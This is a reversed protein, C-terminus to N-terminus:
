STRGEAMFKLLKETPDNDILSKAVTLLNQEITEKDKEPKCEGKKDATAHKSGGLDNKPDANQSDNNFSSEVINLPEASHRSGVLQFLYGVM